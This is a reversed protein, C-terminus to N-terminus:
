IKRCCQLHHVPNCINCEGSLERNLFPASINMFPRPLFNVINLYSVDHALHYQLHNLSRSHQKRLDICVEAIQDM